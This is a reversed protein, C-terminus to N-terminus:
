TGSGEDQQSEFPVVSIQGNPEIQAEKVESVDEMGQQRLMSYIQEEVILERKMNERLFKGNEILKVSRPFAFRRMPRFRYSLWDIAYSWLVVILALIIGDTISTYDAAVANQVATTVLVLVLFDTLSASAVSGRQALFRFMAFLALYVITGRLFAEILPVTPVFLKSLSTTDFLAEM